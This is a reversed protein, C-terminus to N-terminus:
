AQELCFWSFCEKGRKNTFPCSARTYDPLTAMPQRIILFRGEASVLNGDPWPNSWIYFLLTSNKRAQGTKKRHERTVTEIFFPSLNPDLCSFLFCYLCLIDKVPTCARTVVLCLTYGPQGRVLTWVQTLHQDPHQPQRIQAILKPHIRRLLLTVKHTLLCLLRRFTRSVMLPVFIM